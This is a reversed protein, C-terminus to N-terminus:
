FQNLVATRKSQTFDGHMAVGHIGRRSLQHELWDATRKTQTFVIGRPIKKQEIIFALADIRQNRDILVYYQDVEDVTLKDQSVNVFEADSKLFQASLDLIQKPMTASFLMTQHERPLASLIAKIDDIFGMDLMRDAEDLVLFQVHSLDLDGRRMLDLLRGPTGAVIQPNYRLEDTQVNISQGGFVATCRVKQNKSLSAIETKVQMALERTPLIVLAAIHQTHPLTQLIPIAFAATKGTGTKAQGILDKGAMVLPITREQIETPKEFGKQRIAALLEPHLKLEEFKM